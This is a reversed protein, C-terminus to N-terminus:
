TSHLILWESRPRTFQLGTGPRTLHPSSAQSSCDSLVSSPSHHLPWSPPKPFKSPAGVRGGWRRAAKEFARPNGKWTGFSRRRSSLATVQGEDGALGAVHADGLNPTTLNCHDCHNVQSPRRDWIVIAVHFLPLPASTSHRSQSNHSGQGSHAETRCSTMALSRRVWFVLSVPCPACGRNSPSMSGLPLAM